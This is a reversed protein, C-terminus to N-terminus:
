VLEALESELQIGFHREVTSRMRAMLAKVDSACAGREVVIVNAHQPSVRAGGVCAGRLGVAEILRGAFDGPPNKFVSGASRGSWRRRRAAALARQEQVTAPTARDLAFAIECVIRGRVARCERYGADLDEQNLLFASGNPEIGRVWRVREAIAQGHAGANMFLAGGVTGPIGEMFELGSYGREGTWDLLEAMRTGAGAVITGDSEERIGGFEAGSFGLTMGRVGCDSVLVNSGAGLMRWPVGYRDAWALAHSLDASDGVSIWIDARGGVGLTTRSALPEDVAVESNRLEGRLETLPYHLAPRSGPEAVAAAWEAIQVVDGAGIILICDGERAENRLFGWAQELSDALVVPPMSEQRDHQRFAGYLDWVAGGELPQESAAYVPTLVLLVLGRFAPPFDDLLARTRTYRHPQFVALMRKGSARAADITAAIETPHHAYDSLVLLDDRDVVRQLRRDPLNLRPLGERIGATDLGLKLCAAIAALANLVNHRGPVCLRCGGVDCGSANVRFTQGDAVERVEVARVDATASLGYSVADALEACLAAARPDDGCFVTCCAQGTFRRFCDEFSEVDEFHEMHDFEINTVIAVDPHYLALTGDSEDAEVVMEDGSGWAAVGALSPTAGGICWSPARGAFQLLQAIFASTTTKGHTGGVAVSTKEALLGPLVEGRAYLPIGFERARVIDPCEDSVAASRIVARLDRTIHDGSHGSRVLVGQAELWPGRPGPSLDCGSVNFGRGRLLAAVGAMGVGGIGVLHIHGGPDKLLEAIARRM